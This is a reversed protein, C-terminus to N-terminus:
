EAVFSPSKNAPGLSKVRRPAYASYVKPLHESTFHHGGLTALSARAEYQLSLSEKLVDVSSRTWLTLSVQGRSPALIVRRPREGRVHAIIACPVARSLEEVARRLM